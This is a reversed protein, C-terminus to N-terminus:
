IGRSFSLLRLLHAAVALDLGYGIRWNRTSDLEVDRCISAELYGNTGKVSSLGYKNANLWTPSDGSSATGQVEVKYEVGKMAAEIATQQATAQFIPWLLMCGALSVKLINNQM